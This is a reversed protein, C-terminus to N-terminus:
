ISDENKWNFFFVGRAFYIDFFHKLSLRACQSYRKLQGRCYHPMKDKSNLLWQTKDLGLENWLERSAPSEELGEGEEVGAEGCVMVALSLSSLM